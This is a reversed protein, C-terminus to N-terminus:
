QVNKGEGLYVRAFLDTYGVVALGGLASIPLIEAAGIRLMLTTGIAVAVVLAGIGFALTFRSSLKGEPLAGSETPPPPPSLTRTLFLGDFWTLQRGRPM